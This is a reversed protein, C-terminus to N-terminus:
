ELFLPIQLNETFILDVYQGKKGSVFTEFFQAPM